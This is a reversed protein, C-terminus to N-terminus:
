EPQLKCVRGLSRSHPPRLRWRRGALRGAARTGEKSRGVPTALLREPRWLQLYVRSRTPLLAKKNRGLGAACQRCTAPRYRWETLWQTAVGAEVQLNGEGLLMKVNLHM